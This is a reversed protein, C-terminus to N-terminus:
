YLVNAYMPFFFWRDCLSLQPGRDGVQAKERSWGTAEKEPMSPTALAEKAM